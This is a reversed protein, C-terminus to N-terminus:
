MVATLLGKTIGGMDSEMVEVFTNYDDMISSKMSRYEVLASASSPWWLAISHTLAFM